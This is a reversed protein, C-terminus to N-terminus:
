GNPSVTLFSPNTLGEGHSVLDLIGKEEDFRYVFVGDDPRGETYTGVFLYTSPDQEQAPLSLFLVLFSVLTCARM